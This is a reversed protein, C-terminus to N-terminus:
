ASPDARRRGERVDWRLVGIVKGRVDIPQDRSYYKRAGWAPNSAQLLVYKDEGEGGRWIRKITAEAEDGIAVVVMDGNKWSADKDVIVYDGNLIGDEGTMSDGKVEFMFVNEGRVRNAPLPLLDRINEEAALMPTGAAVEWLLPIVRAPPDPEDPESPTMDTADERDPESNVSPQPTVESTEATRVLTLAAEPRRNARFRREGGRGFGERLSLAIRHARGISKCARDLDQHPKEYKPSIDTRVELDDRLRRASALLRQARDELRAVRDTIRTLRQGHAAFKPAALPWAGDEAAKFATVVREACSRFDAAPGTLRVALDEHEAQQEPYTWDNVGASSEDRHKIVEMAHEAVGIEVLAADLKDEALGALEIFSPTPPVARREYFRPDQSVEIEQKAALKQLFPILDGFESGYAVPSILQSLPRENYQRLQAGPMLLYHEVNRDLMEANMFEILPAINPDRLGDGCGIFVFSCSVFLNRDVVKALQTGSLREYDASGLIISEPKDVVGHIHLVTNTAKRSPPYDADTWTCPKWAPEQGEILRDYNTTVIFTDIGRVAEILYKGEESPELSGVTSDLWSAFEKGNRVARLRRSIDDAAAVYAVADANDLYDRMRDAWREPLRGVVRECKEVGELLLGRWSAHPANDTAAVSFGSGVFPTPSNEARMASCLRDLAETM